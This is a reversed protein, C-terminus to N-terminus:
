ELAPAGTELISKAVRKVRRAEHERGLDLLADAKFMLARYDETQQDTLPVCPMRLSRANPRLDSPSHMVPGAPSQLDVPDPFEQSTRDTTCLTVLMNM